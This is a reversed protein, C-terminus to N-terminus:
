KNLVTASRDPEGLKSGMESLKREVESRSSVGAMEFTKDSWIIRLEKLTQKNEEVKNLSNEVGLSILILMAMLFFVYVIHIFYEDIRLRMLFQGRVIALLSNKLFVGVDSLKWKRAASEEAMSHKKQSACSPM